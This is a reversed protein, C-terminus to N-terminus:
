LRAIRPKLGQNSHSPLSTCAATGVLHALKDVAVREEVEIRAGRVTPRYVLRRFLRDKAAVEEKM